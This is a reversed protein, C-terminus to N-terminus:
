PLGEAIRSWAALMAEQASTIVEVVNTGEKSESMRSKRFSVSKTMM